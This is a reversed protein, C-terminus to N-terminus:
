PGTPSFEEPEVAVEYGNRFYQFSSAIPSGDADYEIIAPGDERHLEDERYYEERVVRGSEPDYEILAPGDERDLVPELNVRKLYEDRLLRGTEPSFHQGTPLNDDRAFNGRQYFFWSTVHGTKGDRYIESPEGGDRHKKGERTYREFTVIGSNADYKTEAPLTDERRNPRFPLTPITSLPASWRLDEVWAEHILAGTEPDFEEYAPGDQHFLLHLGANLGRSRSTPALLWSRSTLRYQTDHTEFVRYEIM